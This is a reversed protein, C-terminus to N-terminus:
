AGRPTRQRRLVPSSISNFSVKAVTAAHNAPESWIGGSSAMFYVWPNKKAKPNIFLTGSYPRARWFRDSFSSISLFLREKGALLM